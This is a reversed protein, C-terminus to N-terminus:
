LLVSLLLLDHILWFGILLTYVQLGTTWDLIGTWYDLGTFPYVWESNSCFVTSESGTDLKKLASKFTKVAYGMQYPVIKAHNIGNQKM